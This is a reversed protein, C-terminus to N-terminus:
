EPGRIAMSSDSTPLFITPSSPEDKRQQQQQQRQQQQHQQQTMAAACLELMQVKQLHHLFHAARIPALCLGFAVPAGLPGRRHGRRGREM